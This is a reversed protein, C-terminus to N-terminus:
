TDVHQLKFHGKKTDTRYYIYIWNPRKYPRTDAGMTGRVLMGEVNFSTGSRDEHQLNTVRVELKIDKGSEVDKTVFTALKPNAAYAEALSTILHYLDPGQVITRTTDISSTM